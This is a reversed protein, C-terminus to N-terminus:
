PPLLSREGNQGGWCTAVTGEGRFLWKCNITQEPLSHLPFLETSINHATNDTSYILRFIQAQYGPYLVNITRSEALLLHSSPAANTLQYCHSLPPQTSPSNRAEPSAIAFCTQFHLKCSPKREAQCFQRQTSQLPNQM